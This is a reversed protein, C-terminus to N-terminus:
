RTAMFDGVQVAETDMILDLGLRLQGAETKLIFDSRDAPALEFTYIVSRGDPAMMEIEVTVRKATAIPIM